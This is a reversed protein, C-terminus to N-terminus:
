ALLSEEEENDTLVELYQHLQGPRKLVQASYRVETKTRLNFNTSALNKVEFQSQFATKGIASTVDSFYIRVLM